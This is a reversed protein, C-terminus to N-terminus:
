SLDNDLYVSIQSVAATANAADATTRLAIVVRHLALGAPAVVTVQGHWTAATSLYVSQVSAALGDISTALQYTGPATGYSEAVVPIIVREGTTVRTPAAEGAWTGGLWLATFPKSAPAPLHTAVLSVVVLVGVVAAVVAVARTFLAGRHPAPPINPAAGAPGGPPLGSESPADGGRSVLRGGLCTVTVVIDTCGLAALGISASSLRIGLANLILADFILVAFSLGISYAAVVAPDERRRRGIMLTWLAFGPILLVPPLAVVARAVGAPLLQAVLVAAEGIGLLVVWASWSSTWTANSSPPDASGRESPTARSSKM